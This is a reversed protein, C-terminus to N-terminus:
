APTPLLASVIDIVQGEELHFETAVTKPSERAKLRNIVDVLRVGTGKIIPQGFAKHPDVIVTQEPILPVYLSRAWVDPALGYKIRKLYKEAVVKIVQNQSLVEFYEDGRKNALLLDSGSGVLRNSALAHEIGEIDEIGRALAAVVERVYSMKFGLQKRFANVVYAEILGGFPITPERRKPDPNVMTVLPPTGNPAAWGQLTTPPVNLFWAAEAVTYLPTEFRLAWDESKM